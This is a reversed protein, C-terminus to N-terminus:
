SALPSLQKLKERAGQEELRKREYVFRRGIDTVIKGGGVDENPDIYRPDRSIFGRNFLEKLQANVTPYFRDDESNHIFEPSEVLNKLTDFMDAEMSFWFMLNLLEQQREIAVGQAKLQQKFEFGFGKFSELRDLFWPLAAAVLFGLATGDLQWNSLQKRSVYLYGLLLAAASFCISIAFRIRRPWDTKPPM